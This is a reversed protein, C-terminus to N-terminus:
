AATFPMEALCKLWGKGAGVAIAPAASGSRAQTSISRMTLAQPSARVSIGHLVCKLDDIHETRCREAPILQRNQSVRGANRCLAHLLNSAFEIEAFRGEDQRLPIGIGIAHADE